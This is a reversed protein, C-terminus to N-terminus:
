RSRPRGLTPEGSPPRRRPWRCPMFGARGAAPGAEGDVAADGPREVGVAEGGDEGGGRDAPGAAGDTGREACGVPEREGPVRPEGRLDVVRRAGGEEVAEVRAVEDGCTDCDGTREHRERQEGGM